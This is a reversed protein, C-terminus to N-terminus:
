ISIEQGTIESAPSIGYELVLMVRSKNKPTLGKHLGFTDEFIITGQEGTFIEIGNKKYHNNIIEDSLRISSIHILKKKKHTFPVFCHPGSNHDVDSLYIFIKFFKKHNCDYHYYQAYEKKENESMQLPNSIYLHSILTINKSNLYAKAVSTFFNSCGIQNIIHNENDNFNVELHPINKKLTLETLKNISITKPFTPKFYRSKDKYTYTLNSTSIFDKIEDVVTPKLKNKYFGKLDLSNILTKNDVSNIFFKTDDLIKIDKKTKNLNRIFHFAYFFKILFVNFTNSPRKKYSNLALMISSILHNKLIHVYKM